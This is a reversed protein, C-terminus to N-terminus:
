NTQGEHASVSEVRGRYFDVRPGGSRYALSVRLPSLSFEPSLKWPGPYIWIERDYVHDPNHVPMMIMPRGLASFVDQKSSGAPIAAVKDRFDKAPRLIVFGVGALAFVALLFYGRRFQM